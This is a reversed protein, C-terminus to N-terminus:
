ASFHYNHIHYIISGIWLTWISWAWLSQISMPHPNLTTLKTFSMTMWAMPDWCGFRRIMQAHDLHGPLWGREREKRKRGRERCTREWVHRREWMNERGREWASEKGRGRKKKTKKEGRERKKKVRVYPVCV